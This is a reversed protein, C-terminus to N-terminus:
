ESREITIGYERLTWEEFSPFAEWREQAITSPWQPDRSYTDKANAYETIIENRTYYLICFAALDASPLGADAEGLEAIQHTLTDQDTGAVEAITANHALLLDFLDKGRRFTKELM